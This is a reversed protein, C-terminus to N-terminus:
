AQNSKATTMTLGIVAKLAAKVSHADNV